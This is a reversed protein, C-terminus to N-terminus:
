VGLWADLCFYALWSFGVILVACLVALTINRGFSNRANTQNRLTTIPDTM